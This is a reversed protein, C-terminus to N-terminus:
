FSLSVGATLTTLVPYNSVGSNPTEPDLDDVKSLVWLNSGRAYVKIKSAIASENRNDFTYSLEVNKLRFFSTNEIWFDSNVNNNDGETTTLRPQNGNPNNTAHYRDFAVDSYKGTGYNTYYDNNLYSQVGFRATGLVYLGWGKYSLTVNVGLMTSPFSIGIETKDLDDIVGDNNLDAYAIDGEGYSGFSQTPAGELDVDKGFLGLSKYGMMVDTSKGETRRYEEEYDVEDKKVYENRAYTINAGLQYSFNGSRKSWKVEAEFGKNAIEGANEYYYLGGYISSWESDVLDIIDYRYENFYNAAFSLHNNFAVGEIGINLERSKEWDLNENGMYDISTVDTSTKNSDGFKTTGNDYWCDEYLYSSTATDYGIIGWSAKLKLFDILSNDSMFEEESLIWAAGFAYSMFHRNGEQFKNSGMLAANAEFIYKNDITYNTRLFTNDTEIDQSSGNVVDYYSFYGLTSSFDVSGIERDYDVQATYGYARTTYDSTLEYTDSTAAEQRLVFAITDTGDTNVTAYPDYTAPTIDLTEQGYFFNDFTVFGKASLGKTIKSLDFNLGMSIEGTITNDEVDGSYALSGLLNSAYLSSAGLAPVGDSTAAIYEEDIIMPYENPRHNSLASFTESDWLSSRKYKNQVFSMGMNASISKTVNVDINSRLNFRSYVPEVGVSQLGLNQVYGGVVSYTVSENGGSFEAAYKSYTTSNKLFYDYYDVDPHLIDNPGASSKYDALDGASYITSLGDNERAENYLTAYDYSNMFDPLRTPLGVGFDASVKMVKTHAKGRKTTVLVVGSAARSGYLIKATVDKIVEISEIEEAIIDDLSREIGDVIVLASNYNNSSKGRVYLSAGNLLGGTSNEVMLGMAQGQLAKSLKIGSYSVLDEGQIRTAAGVMNRTSEHILMPLNRQDNYGAYTLSKTLSIQKLSSKIKLDWLYPEYNTLEVLLKGGQKTKIKFSGDEQSYSKISGENATILANMLPEGNEDVVVSAVEITSVKKKKQGNVTTPITLLFLALFVLLYQKYLMNKM